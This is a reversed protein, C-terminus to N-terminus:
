RAQLLVPLRGRCHGSSTQTTLPASLKAAAVRLLTLHEILVTPVAHERVHHQRKQRKWCAARVPGPIRKASSPAPCGQGGPTVRATPDRSLAFPVVIKVFPM